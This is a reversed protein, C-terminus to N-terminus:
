ANAAVPEKHAASAAEPQAAGAQQQLDRLMAERLIANLRTQYGDGDRKLWHLVDTDIRLTIPKKIPRYFRGQIPNNWALSPADSYDIGEDTQAADLARLEAAQEPSLKPREALTKRVITM